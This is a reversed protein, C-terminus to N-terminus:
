GKLGLRVGAHFIDTKVTETPRPDEIWEQTLIRTEDAFAVTWTRSGDQSFEISMISIARRNLRAHHELAAAVQDADYRATVPPSCVNANM